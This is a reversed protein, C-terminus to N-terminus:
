RWRLLALAAVLLLLGWAPSSSGPGTSSCGKECGDKTGKGGGEDDDPRGGG